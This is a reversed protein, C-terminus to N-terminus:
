TLRGAMGLLTSGDGKGALWQLGLMPTRLVYGALGHEARVSSTPISLTAYREDTFGTNHLAQSMSQRRFFNIHLPPTAVPLMQRLCYPDDLNPVSFVFLGDPKLVSRIATLMSLVDPVHEMVEFSVVADFKKEHPPAFDEIVGNFTEVGLSRAKEAALNALEVGTVDWGRQQAVLLFTGPGSGVELLSGPPHDSEIWEFAKRKFWRLERLGWEGTSTKEAAEVMEHYDSEGSYVKEYQDPSIRRLRTYVFSCDGCRAMEYSNYPEISEQSDSSCLPCRTAHGQADLVMGPQEMMGFTLM